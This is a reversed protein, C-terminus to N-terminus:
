PPVQGEVVLKKLAKFVKNALIQDWGLKDEHHRYM